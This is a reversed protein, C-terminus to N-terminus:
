FLLERYCFFKMLWDCRVKCEHVIMDVPIHNSVGTPDEDKVM